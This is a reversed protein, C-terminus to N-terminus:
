QNKFKKKFHRESKEILDIMDYLNEYTLCIYKLGDTNITVSQTYDFSLEVTDLDADLILASVSDKTKILKGVKPCLIKEINM